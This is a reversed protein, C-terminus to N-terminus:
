WLQETPWSSDVSLIGNAYQCINAEAADSQDYSYTWTGTGGNMFSRSHASDEQQFQQGTYSADVLGRRRLCDAIAENHDKLLSANGVQKEYLFEIARRHISTCASMDESYKNEQEDTGSAHSTETKLGDGIDVFIIEKYGRDLMCQRYGALGTEYDVVDVTGTEVVRQVAALQTDSMPPDDQADILSQALQQMSSAWREGTAQETDLSEGTGCGTSTLTLTMVLTATGVGRLWGVLKTANNSM